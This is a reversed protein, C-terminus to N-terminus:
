QIVDSFTRVEYGMMQDVSSPALVSEWDVQGTDATKGFGVATLADSLKKGWDRFYANSSCVPSASFSQTAMM